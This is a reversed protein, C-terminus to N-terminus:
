KKQVIAQALRKIQQDTIEFISDFDFKHQVFDKTFDIM